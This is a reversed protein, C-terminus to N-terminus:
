RSKSSRDFSKKCFNGSFSQFLKEIGNRHLQNQALPWRIRQDERKENGKVGSRFKKQNVHLPKQFLYRL